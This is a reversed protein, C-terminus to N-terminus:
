GLYYIHADATSLAQITDKHPLYKGKCIFLWGLDRTKSIKVILVTAIHFKRVSKSVCYDQCFDQKRAEWIM